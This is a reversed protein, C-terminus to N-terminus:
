TQLYAIFIDTNQVIDNEKLLLLNNLFFKIKVM